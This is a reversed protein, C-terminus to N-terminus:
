DKRSYGLIMENVYVPRPLKEIKRKNYRMIWDRTLNVGSSTDFYVPTSFESFMASEEEEFDVPDQFYSALEPPLQADELALYLMSELDEGEYLSKIGDQTPLGHEVAWKDWVDWPVFSYSKNFVSNESFNRLLFPVVVNLAQPSMICWLGSSKCAKSGCYECYESMRNEKDLTKVPKKVQTLIM